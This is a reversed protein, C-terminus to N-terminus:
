GRAQAILDLSAMITHQYFKMGTVLHPGESVNVTTRGHAPPWGEQPEKRLTYIQVMFTRRILVAHTLVQLACARHSVCPFYEM